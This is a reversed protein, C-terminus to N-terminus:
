SVLVNLFSIDNAPADGLNLFFSPPDLARCAHSTNSIVPVILLPSLYGYLTSPFCYWGVPKM